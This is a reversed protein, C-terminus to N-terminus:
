NGNAGIFGHYNLQNYLANYQLFTSLEKSGLIADKEIDRCKIVKNNLLNCLLFNNNIEILIVNEHFNFRPKTNKIGDHISNLFIHFYINDISSENTLLLNLFGIVKLYFCFHKNNKIFDCYDKDSIYGQLSVCKPCWNYASCSICNRHSYTEKLINNIGNIINEYSDNITGIKIKNICGLINEDAISVRLISCINCKGSFMCANLYISNELDNFKLVRNKFFNKARKEIESLSQSSDIKNIKMKIPENLYTNNPQIYTYEGKEIISAQDTPLYSDNRYAYELNEDYMKISLKLKKRDDSFLNKKSIILKEPYSIVKGNISINRDIFVSNKENFDKIEIFKITGVSNLDQNIGTFYSIYEKKHESTKMLSEKLDGSIIETKILENFVPHMDYNNYYTRYPLITPSTEKHIQYNASEEFIKSGPFCTTFCVSTNKIANNSKIFNITKLADYLEENPLGFNVSIYPNIGKQTAYHFMNQLNYIYDAANQNKGLKGLKDLTNCSASELGIVINKFNCEAMADIVDKTLLDSRTCCWFQFQLGASIIKSCLEITREKSVSFCDDFFSVKTNKGSIFYSIYKLEQIISNISHIRFMKSNVYSCFSCEGYCGVSSVMGVNQIEEPPIVGSSYPLGLDDLSYDIYKKETSYVKNDAKYIINSIEWIEKNCLLIDKLSYAVSDILCMDIYVEDLLNNAIYNASAGFVYVTVNPNSKRLTNIILKNIFFNYENIYFVYSRSSISSLERIIDSYRKINKNIYQMTKLDFKNLYSRIYACDLQYEAGTIYGNVVNIYVFVSDYFQM